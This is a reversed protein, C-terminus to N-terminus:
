DDQAANWNMRLQRQGNARTVVVWNMRVPKQTVNQPLWPTRVERNVAPMFETTTMMSHLATLTICSM